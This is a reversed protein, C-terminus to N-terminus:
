IDIGWVDDVRFGGNSEDEYCILQKSGLAQQYCLIPPQNKLNKLVQYSTSNKVKEGKFKPSCIIVAKVCGDISLNDEGDKRSKVLFRYEQEYQWDISKTFFIMNRKIWLDKVSKKKADSKQMIAASTIGPEYIIKSCERCSHFTSKLRQELKEKDFVICVGNGSEAYHGWLPDIEYGRCEITDLTFSLLKYKKLEQEVDGESLYDSYVTLSSEAIDNMDELKGFRLLGTSLIRVASDLRTFHFLNNSYDNILNVINKM